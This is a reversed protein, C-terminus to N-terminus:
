IRRHFYKYYRALSNLGDKKILTLEGKSKNLRAREDLLVQLKPNKIDVIGRRGLDYIEKKTYGFMKEAAFNAYFINGDPHTLLIADM